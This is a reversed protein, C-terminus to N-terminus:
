KYNDAWRRTAAHIYKAKRGTFSPNVAQQVVPAGARAGESM